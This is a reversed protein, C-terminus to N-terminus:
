CLPMFTIDDIVKRAFLLCARVDTDSIGPHRFLIEPISIDQGMLGLVEEVTVSTGKIVPKGNTPDPNLTIRELLELEKRNMAM